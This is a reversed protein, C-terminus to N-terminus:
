LKTEVQVKCNFQHEIQGADISEHVFIWGIMNNKTNRMAHMKLNDIRGTILCAPTYTQTEM